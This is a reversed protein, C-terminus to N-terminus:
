SEPTAFERLLETIGSLDDLEDLRWLREHLTTAEESPLVRNVMADFKQSLDEDSLSDDIRGQLHSLSEHRVRGDRLGITVEAPWEGARQRATLEEDQHVSIRNMLPRLAPDAIREPSFSDLTLEGDTLAVAIIYPLSHDATERTKPDWKQASDGQGGGIEHWALYYTKIDVYQIDEVNTEAAVRLAIHLAVQSNFEAPYFKFNTREVASRGPEPPVLSIDFPGTVQEFVGNVGAFPEPPGSMGQEALRTAFTATMAAHATACAKWNPMDGTRVVRLPISPTIALSLANATQEASLGLLKSMGAAAGLSCHAGQDWGRDRLWAARALEAGVEYAIYIALIVDRGTAGVREGTALQAPAMDNPHGPGGTDNFDLYRNMTTNAFTAFEIVAPERLGYVSAGCPGHVGAALARAIRAPTSDFGGAACGIGDLHHRITARIASPTLSAYTTEQVFDVIKRTIEDM